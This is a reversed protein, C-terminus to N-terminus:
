YNLSFIGLIKSAYYSLLFFFCAYIKRKKQFSFFCGKKSIFFLYRNNTPPNNHFFRKIKKGEISNEWLEPCFQRKKLFFLWAIKVYLTNKLSYFILNGILTQGQLKFHNKYNLLVIIAIITNLDWGHKSRL